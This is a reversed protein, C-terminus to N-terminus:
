TTYEALKDNPGLHRDELLQIIAGTTRVRSVQKATSFKKNSTWSVLQTSTKMARRGDDFVSNIVAEGIEIDIM